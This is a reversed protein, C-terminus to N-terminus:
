RGAVAAAQLAIELEENTPVVLVPVAAGPPSITRADRSPARNREPDVVIGLRELGALSRGRVTPSHEGIGATFVVADLRGMVALYAGVYKRIRHCVVDLALQADPYGTAALAEVSRLDNEGALGRLGSQKTFITEIEEYSLGATRHLHFAIAPDLDGSRTGMVLGELTSLGMSTDVSRGGLVATASSGNGLHLVVLALESLPRGLLAAAGRSVYAYSTGHFGYRRIGHARALDTPIAYTTAVAPLDRHFATDFIAVHPVEPHIARLARIGDLNGPNHLPALPVLAEIAMIVEDDVLTPEVFRSGGHVVRHGVALLGGPHRVDHGDDALRDLLVEVAAAHNAVGSDGESSAGEGSAGERSAGEGIREVSGGALRTSTATDVLQYKVSSSGSNIVLVTDSV